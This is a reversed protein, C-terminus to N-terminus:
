RGNEETIIGEPVAVHERCNQQVHEPYRPARLALAPFDYRWGHGSGDMRLTWDVTNLRDRNTYECHEIPRSGYVWLAWDIEIWATVVDLRLRDRDM